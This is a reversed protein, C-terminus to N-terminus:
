TFLIRIGAREACDNLVKLLSASTLIEEPVDAPEIWDACRDGFLVVAMAPDARNSTWVLGDLDAFDRHWAAAWPATRLYHDSDSHVLARTLGNRELDPRFLQALSLDRTAHVAGAVLDILDNEHVTRLGAPELPVDHFIREYFACVQTEGGYLTPIFKGASTKIPAFRTPAGVGPNFQHATFKQHWVRHLPVGARWLFRTPALTIPSPPLPIMPLSSTAPTM